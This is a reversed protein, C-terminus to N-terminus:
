IKDQKSLYKSGFEVVNLGRKVHVLFSPSFQTKPMGSKFYRECKADVDVNVDVNADFKLM